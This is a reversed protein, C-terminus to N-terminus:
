PFRTSLGAELREDQEKQFTTARVTNTNGLGPDVCLSTPDQWIDGWSSKIVAHLGCHINPSRQTQSAAWAPRNRGLETYSLANEHVVLTLFSQLCSALILFLFGLMSSPSPTVLAEAGDSLSDPPPASSALATQLSFPTGLAAQGDAQTLWPSLGGRQPLSPLLDPLAQWLVRCDATTLHVDEKDQGLRPDMVPQVCKLPFIWTM